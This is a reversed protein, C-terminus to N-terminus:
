FQKLSCGQFDHSHGQYEKHKWGLQVPRPHRVDLGDPALGVEDLPKGVDLLLNLDLYWFKQQVSSFRKCKNMM